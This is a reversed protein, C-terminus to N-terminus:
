SARPPHFIRTLTRVPSGDPELDFRTTAANDPCGGSDNVVGKPDPVPSTPAPPIPNPAKPSGHCFPGHCPQDDPKSEHDAMPQVAGDPGLIRVYDGCEADARGACCFFVVAPLLAAGAQRVFRSHASWVM